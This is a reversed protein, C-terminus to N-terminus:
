IRSVKGELRSIRHSFAAHSRADRALQASDRGKLAIDLATEYDKRTHEYYKALEEAAFLRLDRSPDVLTASLAPIAKEIDGTRKVHTTAERLAALRLPAPVAAQYQLDLLETAMRHEGRRLRLLKAAIRDAAHSEIDVGSIHAGVIGTLRALSVIDFRNHEIVPGLDHVARNRLYNFYISPILWGPADSERVVGLIHQELTGLSCSELRHKWIARAPHLLDLHDDPSSYDLQHMRFRTEILPMDFTRGNFTTMGDFDSLHGAVYGLLAVEEGPHRMFYQRVRFGAPEFWGLGILFAYTGTGGSLGTTETDIYIRADAPLKDAQSILERSQEIEPGQYLRDFMGVSGSGGQVLTGGEPLPWESEQAPREATETSTRNLARYRDAFSRNSMM